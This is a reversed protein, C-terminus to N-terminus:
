KHAATTLWRLIDQHGMHEEEERLCQLFLEYSKEGKRPLIQLLHKNQDHQLGQLKDLEERESPTLLGKEILLPMLQKVNLTYIIKSFHEDVYRWKSSWSGTKSWIHGGAPQASTSTPIQVVSSWGPINHVHDYCLTM